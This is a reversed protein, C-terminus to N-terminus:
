NADVETLFQIQFSTFERWSYTLVKSAYHKGYKAWRGRFKNCRRTNNNCLKAKIIWIAHFLGFIDHAMSITMTAVAIARHAIKLICSIERVLLLFSAIAFWKIRRRFTGPFPSKAVLDLGRWRGSIRTTSLKISVPYSLCLSRNKREFKLRLSFFIRRRLITSYTVPAAGSFNGLPCAGASATVRIKERPWWMLRWMGTM